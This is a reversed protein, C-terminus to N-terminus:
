LYLLPVYFCIKYITPSHNHSLCPYISFSYLLFKTEARMMNIQKSMEIITM